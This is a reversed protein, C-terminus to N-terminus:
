PATAWMSPGHLARTVDLLTCKSCGEVLPHPVAVPNLGPGIM